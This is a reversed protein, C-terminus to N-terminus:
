RRYPLMCPLCRKISYLNIKGCLIFTFISTFIRGLIKNKVGCVIDGTIPVLYPYRSYINYFFTKHAKIRNIYFKAVISVFQTANVCLFWGISIGNFLWGYVVLYQIIWMSHERNYQRYFPHAAPIYINLLLPRDASISGAGPATKLYKCVAFCLYPVSIIRHLFRGYECALLFM